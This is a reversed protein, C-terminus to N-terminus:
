KWVDDDSDVFNPDYNPDYLSNGQDIPSGHPPAQQIIDPNDTGTSHSSNVVTNMIIELIGKLVLNVDDSKAHYWKARNRPYALRSLVHEPADRYGFPIFIPHSRMGTRTTPDYTLQATFTQSWDRDGPEGDTLFFACPRYVRNGTARLLSVDSRITQALATFAAGYDTGGEDTHVGLEPINERSVQGMPTLVRTTNSFSMVCIQAVDYVVPEALISGWLRRVGDNLVTMDHVMSYSADCLLYFPMVIQVQKVAIREDIRETSMM